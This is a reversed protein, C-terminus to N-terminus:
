PDAREPRAPAFREVAARYDEPSDLDVTLAPDRLELFARGRFRSHLFDRLTGGHFAALDAFVDRPFFIPHKPRGEFAPQCIRGPHSAAHEIVARLTAASIQPQDGLAMAIQTLGAPWVNWASAAQLSSFMGQAPSPNVIRASEPFGLRDLELHLPHPAPACVVAIMEAGTSRWVSLLHGIVTTAAWPLLLKPEGMRTSAGAGLIVVGFRFNGGSM